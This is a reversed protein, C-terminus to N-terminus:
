GKRGITRHYRDWFKKRYRDSRSENLLGKRSVDKLAGEIVERGISKEFNEKTPQVSWFVMGALFALLITVAGVPGLFELYLDRYTPVAVRPNLGFCAEYYFGEFETPSAKPESLYRRDFGDEVVQITSPYTRNLPSGTCSLGQSRSVNELHMRDAYAAVVLPVVLALVLGALGATVAIRATSIPPKPGSSAM